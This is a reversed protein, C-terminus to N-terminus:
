ARLLPVLVLVGESSEVMRSELADLHLSTLTQWSLAADGGWDLGHQGAALQDTGLRDTLHDPEEVGATKLELIDDVDGSEFLGAFLM